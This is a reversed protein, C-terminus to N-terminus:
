RGVCECCFQLGMQCLDHISCPLMLLISPMGLPLVVVLSASGRCQLFAVKDQPFGVYETVSCSPDGRLQCWPSIAGEAYASTNTWVSELEDVRLSPSSAALGMGVLEGFVM